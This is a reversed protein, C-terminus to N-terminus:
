GLQLSIPKRLCIVIGSVDYSGGRTSLYRQSATHSAMTPLHSTRANQFLPLKHHLPIALFLSSYHSIIFPRSYLQPSFISVPLTPYCLLKICLQLAGRYLRLPSRPSNPGQLKRSRDETLSKRNEKKKPGQSRAEVVLAKAGGVFVRRM